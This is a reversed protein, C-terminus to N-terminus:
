RGGHDPLGPPQLLAKLEGEHIVTRSRLAKVSQPAEFTRQRLRDGRPLLSPERNGNGIAGPIPIMGCGYMQSVSARSESSGVGRVHGNRDILCAVCGFAFDMDALEIGKGAEADSEHQMMKFAPHSRAGRGKNTRHM